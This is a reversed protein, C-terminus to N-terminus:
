VGQEHLGRRQLAIREEELGEVAPVHRGAQPEPKDGIHQQHKESQRHQQDIADHPPQSLAHGM